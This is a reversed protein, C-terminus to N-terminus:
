CISVITVCCYTHQGGAAAPPPPAASGDNAGDIAQQGAPVAPPSIVIKSGVHTPMGVHVDGTVIQPHGGPPSDAAAAAIGTVSKPTWVCQGTIWVDHGGSVTTQRGVSIPGRVCHGAMRVSQGDCGVTQGTCGVTHGCKGVCQPGCGVIQVSGVIQGRGVTQPGMWGVMQVSVGGHKM